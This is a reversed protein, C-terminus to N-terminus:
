QQRNIIVEPDAEPFLIRVMTRFIAHWESKLWENQEWKSSHLPASQLPLLLSGDAREWQDLIDALRQKKFLGTIDEVSEIDACFLPHVRVSPYKSRDLFDQLFTNLLASMGITGGITDLTVLFLYVHKIRSVDIAPYLRAGDSGFLTKVADALQEVGKKSNSEQNRVLKKRIEATLIVPDGGYKGSATFVNGKYELIVISDGSLILGDCLQVNPNNVPRPDAMYQNATGQSALTMLEHAYREFVMGWFSHLRQGHVSSAHWYPGTLVKDLFFLNDLMLFGVWATTLHLNYYQLILPYRRFITLDNPGNDRAVLDKAMKSPFSALSNLFAKVKSPPVATTEFNADKLPLAGPTGYLMRSLSEGHRAHAGFIMAENEEIALGTAAEYEGKVDIWDKHAQLDNSFRTLMLHSRTILPAIQPSSDEGTAVMEAVIRSYDDRTSPSAGRESLERLLGHDLQDNAKLLIGGIRDANRRADMGSGKCHLLALKTILLIQRRHFLIYRPNMTWFHGLLRGTLARDFYLKVLTEYVDAPQNGVRNWLQMGAVITACVWLMSQQTFASIEAVLEDLSSKRGYINEFTEYVALQTPARM